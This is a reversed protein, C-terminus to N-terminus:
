VAMKQIVNGIYVHISLRSHQVSDSVAAIRPYTQSLKLIQTVYIKVM